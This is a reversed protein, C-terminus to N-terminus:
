HHVPSSQTLSTGRHCCADIPGPYTPVIAIIAIICQVQKFTDTSAMYLRLDKAFSPQTFDMMLQFNM